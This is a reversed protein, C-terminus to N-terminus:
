LILMADGYSYFRFGEAIAEAYADLLPRRGVLAAVLLLLSSRPLHFNTLLGDVVRLPRGPYLFLDTEGSRAEVLGDDTACTELVRTTTTGVAIVRGGRARCEAIAQATEAPLRFTEGHLRGAALDADSIPRFTGPGVHLVVEARAVGRGALAELIPESLHLGATPAAVAGPEDAYVTQYRDLDAARGREDIQEAARRIYPPLPAEGIEYPLPGPGFQLIVEGGERRSIVEADLAPEGGPAEFRLQVGERLRGTLKVLARYRRADPAGEPGLLLAEALGGTAKRGRLRAPLVRTTNVVLLDGPELIEPLDSVHLDRGRDVRAGSGRALRMLRSAARDPLAQQAICRDPLAFAYDDLQLDRASAPTSDSMM